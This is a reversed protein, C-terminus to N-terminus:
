SSDQRSWFSHGLRTSTPFLWDRHVPLVPWVVGRFCRSGAGVKVAGSPHGTGVARRRLTQADVTLMEGVTVLSVDGYCVCRLVQDVREKVKSQIKM